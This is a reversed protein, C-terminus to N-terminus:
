QFTSCVAMQAAADHSEEFTVDATVAAVPRNWQHDDNPEDCVGATGDGFNSDIWYHIEYAFGIVLVGPFDFSFAPNATASVTGSVPGGVILGDSARVIAVEIAQDPHPTNFSADGVFTLDAAFTACVDMTASADHTETITVDASPAAVAINWQHDNAPPDCVGETPSGPAFNSDIWYHVQYATGEALLNPFTFSFAPDADLVTGDDRAVVAGDSTRVVAVYIAQGPHPTYFTNDGQFTLDFPGAQGVPEDDDDCATLAAALALASAIRVLTRM